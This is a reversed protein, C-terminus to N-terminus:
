DVVELKLRFGGYEITASIGGDWIFAEALRRYQAPLEAGPLTFEEMSDYEPNDDWTWTARLRM